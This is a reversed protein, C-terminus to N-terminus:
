STGYPRHLEGWGWTPMPENTTGSMGPQSYTLAMRTGWELYGVFASRFDPDTPLGIADATDILLNMWHRRQQETLAKGLHRSIMHQHGGRESSYAKPGGFVEGLWAAVHKPHEPDMTAFLPGILPDDAVRTYFETFLKEFAAAGGAWEYLSPVKNVQHYHRMEEIASVYDKIEAFFEQFEKSARFGEVHDATSTWIIRLIYSEPDEECRSLEYDRCFPSALLPKAARRYAEEFAATQDLAIRYRIYEVTM